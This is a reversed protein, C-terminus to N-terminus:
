AGDGDCEGYHANIADAIVEALEIAKADDRLNIVALVKADDDSVCYGGGFVNMVSAPLSFGREDDAKERKAIDSECRACYEEGNSARNCACCMTGCDSM